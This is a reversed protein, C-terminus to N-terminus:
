NLQRLEIIAPSVNEGLSEGADEATEMQVLLLQSRAEFLAADLMKLANLAKQLKIAHGFPIFFHQILDKSTLDLLSEGDIEAKRFISAYRKLELSHISCAPKFLPVIDILTRVVKEGDSSMYSSERATDSDDPLLANLSSLDLNKCHSVTNLWLFVEEVTWTKIERTVEVPWLYDLHIDLTGIVNGFQFVLAASLTLTSVPDHQVAIDTGFDVRSYSHSTSGGDRSFLNRIWSFLRSFSRVNPYDTFPVELAQPSNWENYKLFARSSLLALAAVTILVWPQSSQPDPVFLVLLYMLSIPACYCCLGAFEETYKCLRQSNHVVAIAISSLLGLMSSIYVVIMLIDARTLVSQPPIQARIAGHQIVAALLASTCSTIRSTYLEAPMAYTALTSLGVFAAPAISLAGLMDNREFTIEMTLRSAKKIPVRNEASPFTLPANDTHLLPPWLNQEEIDFYANLAASARSRSNLPTFSSMKSPFGSYSDMYCLLVPPDLSQTNSKIELKIPLVQSQFPYDALNPSFFFDSQVRFHDLGDTVFSHFLLITTNIHL